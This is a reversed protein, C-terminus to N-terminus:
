GGKKNGPMEVALRAIKVAPLTDYRTASPCDALAYGESIDMESCTLTIYGFLRGPQDSAAAVYTQAILSQQYQLADQRLFTKLPLFAQDGLKFNNLNDEPLLPRVCYGDSADM